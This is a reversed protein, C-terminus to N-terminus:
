DGKRLHEKLTGNLTHLEATADELKTCLKDFKDDHRQLRKEQESIMISHENVLKSNLEM